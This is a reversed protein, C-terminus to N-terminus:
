CQGFHAWDVQAQDGPSVNVASFPERILPALPRCCYAQVVSGSYGGTAIMQFLRTARLRPFQELM